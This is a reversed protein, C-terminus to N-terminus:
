LGESHRDTHVLEVEELLGLLQIHHAPRDVVVEELRHGQRIRGVPKDVVEVVVQRQRSRRPVEVGLFTLPIASDFLALTQTYKPPPISIKLLM